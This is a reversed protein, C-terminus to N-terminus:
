KQKRRLAVAGSALLVAGLGYVAGLGVVGTKPTAAPAESAAEEVPAAEEAPAADESAKGHTLLINGAEDKFDMQTVKVDGNQNNVFVVVECWQSGVTGDMPFNIVLKGDLTQGPYDTPAWGGDNSNYVIQLDFTANGEFTIDVSRVKSAVEANSISKGGGILKVWCDYEENPFSFPLEDSPDKAFATGVMTSLVFVMAIFGVLVKRLKMENDEKFFVSLIELLKFELVIFYAQIHWNNM